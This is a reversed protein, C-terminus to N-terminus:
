ESRYFEIRNKGGRKALYLAADARSFLDEETRAHDPFVAAGISVTIRYPEGKLDPFGDYEAIVVRLREATHIAEMEATGPLLIVFEEGGYRFAIDIKRLNGRILDAIAVLADDGKRHGMTNNIQRFDDIDLVLLSLKTGSRTAREMEIRVQRDYFSRNYVRTLKDVSTLSELRMTNEVIQAIMGSAIDVRATLLPGNDGDSFWIELLGWFEGMSVVPSVARGLAEARKPRVAAPPPSMGASGIQEGSVILTQEAHRCEKYVANELIDAEPMTVVCEGNPGREGFREEVLILRGWYFRFWSPILQVVWDLRQLTSERQDDISFSRIIDPLINISTAVPTEEVVTTAETGSTEVAPEKEAEEPDEPGTEVGRWESAPLVLRIQYSGQNRVYTLTVHGNRDQTRKRDFYRAERLDELALVSAIRMSAEDGSAVANEVQKRRAVSLRHRPVLNALLYKYDKDFTRM